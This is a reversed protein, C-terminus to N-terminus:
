RDYGYCGGAGNRGEEMMRREDPRQVPPVIPGHPLMATSCLEHFRRLQQADFLPPLPNAMPNPESLMRPTSQLDDRRAEPESGVGKHGGM